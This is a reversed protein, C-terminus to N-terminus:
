RAGYSDPLSTRILPNSLSVGAAPPQFGNSGASFNSSSVAGVSGTASPAVHPRGAPSAAGAWDSNSLSFWHGEVEAIFDASSAVLRQRAERAGRINSLATYLATAAAERSAHTYRALFGTPSQHSAIWTM